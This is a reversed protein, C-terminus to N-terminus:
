LTQCGLECAIELMLKAKNRQVEIKDQGRNELWPKSWGAFVFDIANPYQNAALLITLLDVGWSTQGFREEFVQLGKELQPVLNELVEIRFSQYGLPFKQNYTSLIVEKNIPSLSKYFNTIMTTIEIMLPRKEGKVWYWVPLFLAKIPSHSFHSIIFPIKSPDHEQCDLRVILDPRSKLDCVAEYGDVLTQALGKKERHRVLISYEDPLNIAADDLFFHRFGIEQESLKMRTEEIKQLFKQIMGLPENWVPSIAVINEILM